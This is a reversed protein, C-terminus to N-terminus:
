GGASRYGGKADLGTSEQRDFAGQELIGPTSGM